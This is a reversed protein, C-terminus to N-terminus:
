ARRLRRLRKEIEALPLFVAQDDRWVELAAILVDDACAGASSLEDIMWLVGHVEVAKETAVRRLLGDGTLLVGNEHSQASVLCFCDNASLRPHSGKLGYAEVVLAAPLDFTELGGADMFDWEEQSFDLLESHRIPFPVVFRYPLRLIAPLLRGKRLDILCSADNVIVYRHPPKM